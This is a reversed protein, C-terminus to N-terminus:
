CHEPRKNETGKSKPGGAAGVGAGPGAVVDARADTGAATKIRVKFIKGM